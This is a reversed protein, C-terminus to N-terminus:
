QSQLQQQNLKNLTKLVTDVGKKPIAVVGGMAISFNFVNQGSSIGAGGGGKGKSMLFNQFNWGEGKIGVWM